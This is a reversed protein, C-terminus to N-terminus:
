QQMNRQIQELQLRAEWDELRKRERQNEARQQTPTLAEWRQQDAIAAAKREESSPSLVFVAVLGMFILIVAAALVKEVLTM